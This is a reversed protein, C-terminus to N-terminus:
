CLCVWWLLGMPPPSERCLTSLKAFSDRRTCYSWCHKVFPSLSTHLPERNASDGTPESNPPAVVTFINHSSLIFTYSLSFILTHLPFTFVWTFNVHSLHDYSKKQNHINKIRLSQHSIPIREDGFSQYM